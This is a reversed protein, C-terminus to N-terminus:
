RWGMRRFEQESLIGRAPQRFGLLFTRGAVIPCARNDGPALPQISTVFVENAMVGATALMKAGRVTIGTADQGAVGVNLDETQQVSAGKSRDAQPNIIVYTLRPTSSSMPSISTTTGTDYTMLEFNEPRCVFDYLGAVTAVVNRYAPHSTVDGAIEGNLYIQRGDRVSELYQEATKAM